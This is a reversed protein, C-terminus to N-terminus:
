SERRSSKSADARRPPGAAQYLPAGIPLAGGVAAGLAVGVIAGTYAAYEKYEETAAGAVGATIASGVAMGILTHKRRINAIRVRYVDDRAAVEPNGRWKVTISDATIGLLKGEVNASSM